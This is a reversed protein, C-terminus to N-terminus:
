LPKRRVQARAEFHAARELELLASCYRAAFGPRQVAELFRREARNPKQIKAM